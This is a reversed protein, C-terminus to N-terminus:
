SSGRRAAGAARRRIEGAEERTTPSDLARRVNARDFWSLAVAWMIGYFAAEITILLAYSTDLEGEELSDCAVLLAIVGILVFAGQVPAGRSVHRFVDKDGIQGIRCAKIRADLDILTRQRCTCMSRCLFTVFAGLGLLLVVAGPWFLNDRLITLLAVTCVTSFGAAVGVRTSRRRLRKSFEVEPIRGQRLASLDLYFGSRLGRMLWSALRQRWKVVTDRPYVSVVHSLPPFTGATWGASAWSPPPPTSTTTGLAMLPVVVEGATERTRSGTMLSSDVTTEGNV